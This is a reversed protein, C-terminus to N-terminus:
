RGPLPMVVTSQALAPTAILAPAVITPIMKM